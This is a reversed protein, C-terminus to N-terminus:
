KQTLCVNKGGQKDRMSLTRLSSVFKDCSYNLGGEQSSPLPREFLEKRVAQKWSGATVEMSASAGGKTFPQSSEKHLKGWISMLIALSVAPRFALLGNPEELVSRKKVTM